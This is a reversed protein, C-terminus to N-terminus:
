WQQRVWVTRYCTTPVTRLRTWRCICESPAYCWLILPNGNAKCALSPYCGYGLPVPSEWTAGDDQSHTYYVWTSDTGAKLGTYALHIVGGPGRVMRASSNFATMQPFGSGAVASILKFLRGGGPTLRVSFEMGTLAQNPTGYLTEGKVEDCLKVAQLGEITITPSVTDTPLCHRNVVIFYKDSTRTADHFTGFQLLGDSCGTVFGLPVSSSKGVTDSHLALLTAGIRTLVSDLRQVTGFVPRHGGPHGGIDNGDWGMLGESFFRKLFPPGSYPWTSCATTLQMYSLGRAGYALALWFMCQLERPSPERWIGEYSPAPTQPESLTDWITDYQNPSGFLYEGFAQLDVWLPIGHRMAVLRASDLARCFLTDLAIQFVPGSDVPTRGPGATTDQNPFTRGMLPYIDAWLAPPAVQAVYDEYRPRYGPWWNVWTIGPKDPNVGQLVLNVAKCSAFQDPDPEDKLMYRYLAPHDSFSNAIIQVESVLPPTPHGNQLGDAYMDFVQVWDSVISDANGCSYIRFRYAMTDTSRKLYKLSFEQYTDGPQFSGATLLTCAVTSEKQSVLVVALSCVPTAPQCGATDARLRFIATYPMIGGWDWTHVAEQQFWGEAKGVGWARGGAAKSDDVTDGVDDARHLEVDSEYQRSRGASMSSIAYSWWASDQYQKVWIGRGVNAVALVVKIGLDNATDLLARVAQVSGRDPRYIYAFNAQMEQEDPLFNGGLYTGSPAWTAGGNGGMLFPDARVSDASLGVLLMAIASIVLLRKEAKGTRRM